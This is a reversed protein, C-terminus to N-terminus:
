LSSCITLPNNARLFAEGEELTDPLKKKDPDVGLREALDKNKEDGYDQIRVEGVFM